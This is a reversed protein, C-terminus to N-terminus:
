MATADFEGDSVRISLRDGSSVQAASRVFQGDRRVVAYGRQLVALPNLAELRASVGVLRARHLQLLHSVALTAQSVLDDTRQRLNALRVQPSLHVLARTQSGLAARRARLEDMSASILRARLATLQASMEARDPTTLEAAASPTPARLDAVFDAITFDTEHGVGSVVPAPSDAIKRAVREDNFAWLDELSGGGRAVIILDLDGRRYLADLAAVIQPPADDGQVQTPALVVEVLPWRRALINCIDRIVAGTPSTVVGIRHPFEPLRRKREPAFLGEAELKAKLLEFQAHLDGRGRPQVRDVYLQYSGRAEYVSVRGHAVIQEGHVVLAGYMPAVNKWMVCAVQASADKLTFYVHGSTHRVVGSVEGEVWVDQLRYDVEFMERIYRTLDGVTMPTPSSFLNMQRM